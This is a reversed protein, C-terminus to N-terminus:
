AKTEPAAKEAEREEPSLFDVDTVAVGFAEKASDVYRLLERPWTEMGKLVECIAADIGNPVVFERAEGRARAESVRPVRPVIVRGRADKEGIGADIQQLAERYAVRDAQVDADIALEQDILEDEDLISCIRKYKAPGKADKEGKGGRSFYTIAGEIVVRRMRLDLTRQTTVGPVHKV